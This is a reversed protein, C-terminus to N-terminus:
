NNYARWEGSILSKIDKKIWEEIIPVLVKSSKNPVIVFLHESGREVIGFGWLPEQLRGKNAKRKFFCSEDIEVISNSEGFQGIDNGINLQKDIIWSSLIISLKHLTKLSFGQMQHSHIPLFLVTFHTFIYIFIM